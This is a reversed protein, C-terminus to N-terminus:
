HRVSVGIDDARVRGVPQFRRLHGGLLHDRPRVVRAHVADLPVHAAVAALSDVVVAGLRPLLRVSYRASVHGFDLVAGGVAVLAVSFDLVDLVAQRAGVLVLQEDAYAPLGLRVLAEFGDCAPLGLLAHSRGDLLVGCIVFGASAAAHVRGELLFQAALELTGLLCSRDLGVVVELVYQLFRWM